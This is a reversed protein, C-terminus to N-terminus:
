RLFSSSSRESDWSVLKWGQFQGGPMVITTRNDQIRSARAQSEEPEGNLGSEWDRDVSLALRLGEAAFDIPKQRQAFM